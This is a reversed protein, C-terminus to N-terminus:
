LFHWSSYQRKGYIHAKNERVMLLTQYNAYCAHRYSLCAFNAESVGNM